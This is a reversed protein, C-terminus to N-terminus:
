IPLLTYNKVRVSSSATSVPGLPQVTSAANPDTPWAIARTSIFKYMHVSPESSCSYTNVVCTDSVAELPWYAWDNCM